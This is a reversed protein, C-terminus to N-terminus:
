WQETFKNVDVILDTATITFTYTYSYGAQWTTPVSAKVTHSLPEGWDTWIASVEIEGSWDQPIVLYSTLPASDYNDLTTTTFNVDEGSTTWQPIASKDYSGSQKISKLTVSNLTIGSHDYDAWRLKIRAFPHQFTLAVKGPTPQASSNTGAKDQDLAMAYIFEKLTNDQGAATNPLSTCTFTVNHGASYTPGATIYNPVTAPMYAFFDLSGSAPWNHRGDQFQWENTVYRVNSGNIYSTTTEATYAYCTFGETEGQLAAANDFTTARTADMVRWVDANFRIDSDNGNNNANNPADDGSCGSLLIAALILWKAM